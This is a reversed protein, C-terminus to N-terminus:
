QKASKLKFHIKLSEVQAFRLESTGKDLLDQTVVIRTEGITDHVAIDADLVEITLEDGVDVPLTAASFTAKVSDEVTPTTRVYESRLKAIRKELEQLKQAETSTLPRAGEDKLRTVKREYFDRSKDGTRLKKLRDEASQLDKWKEQLRKLDNADGELKTVEEKLPDTREIRVFPDPREFPPLDWVRGDAKRPKVVASEVILVYSREANTLRRKPNSRVEETDQTRDNAMRPRINTNADRSTFRAPGFTPGSTTAASQTTDGWLALIRIFHYAMMVGMAVIFFLAINKIIGLSSSKVPPPTPEDTPLVELVPTTSPESM